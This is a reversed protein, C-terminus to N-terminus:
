QPIDEVADVHDDKEHAVHIQFGEPLIWLRNGRDLALKEQDALGCNPESVPGGEPSGM